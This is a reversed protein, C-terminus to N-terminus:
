NGWAGEHAKNSDYMVYEKEVSIEIVKGTRYTSLSYDLDRLRDEFDEVTGTYQRATMMQVVSGCPLHKFVNRSLHLDNQRAFPPLDSITEPLATVAIHAEFYTGFPTGTSESSVQGSFPDTIHVTRKPVGEYNLDSEFKTRVVKFGRKNLNGIIERSHAVLDEPTGETHSSTMVDFMGHSADPKQLEIVIAKVGIDECVDEFEDISKTLVSLHLEFNSM